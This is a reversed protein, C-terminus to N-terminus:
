MEGQESFLEDYKANKNEATVAKEMLSIVDRAEELLMESLAYDADSDGQIGGKRALYRVMALSQSFKIDGDVLYPVQGFPLTNRLESLVFDSKRKLNLGGAQAM